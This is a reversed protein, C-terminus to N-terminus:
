GHMRNIYCPKKRKNSVLEIVKGAFEGENVRHLSILLYRSLNKPIRKELSLQIILKCQKMSDLHTHGDSFEKSANHLIYCNDLRYVKFNKNQYIQNM